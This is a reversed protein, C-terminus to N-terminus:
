HCSPGGGGEFVEPPYVLTEYATAEARIAAEDIAGLDEVVKVYGYSTSDGNSFSFYETPSLYLTNEGPQLELRTGYYPVLMTLGSDAASANDITWEVDTGGQVVVVAPSYGGDTLKISVRQVAYENGQVEITGLEAVALADVPIAVNAPVPDPIEPYEAGYPPAESGDDGPTAAAEGGEGIVTISSRIMGMWCSYPFRGTETPTFEILNAGTAFSHEVGFAPIFIRNNCGNISGQPAEITWKVPIGAQVTIAPYRGPQLTSGVIQYGDEIPPAQVEAAGTAAAGPLFDLSLGSLSWGQSFMSLGLVVVLTAGVTMVRRTFRRSLVSSLAGLGFMLPVTGLSFLLMSLAGSAPSGTSLAYLQMAQLPGCPMLGNLLGVILPSKSRSKGEDIRRAFVRPMGPTLRRLWPFIGLMNIGMLVMFVGAVLQITGRFSGSLMLVSGLAGVIGGVATYSAVRGLNYLASPRFAAARSGGQGNAQPLCQSLNIGGCMAMCHVSTLLGIIFLMGYGMGAEATPFISFAGTLGFQRMLMFVALIIILLGAARRGSAPEQRGDLATYGLREIVSEIERISIIDTDYVVTAIGDGYAVEASEIGATSRLKREIKGQCGTCTMGGIHLRGTRLKADM